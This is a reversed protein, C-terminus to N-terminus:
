QKPGVTEFMFSKAIFTVFYIFILERYNKHLLVICNIFHNIVTYQLLWKLEERVKIKGHWPNNELEHGENPFLILRV